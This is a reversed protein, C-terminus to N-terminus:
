LSGIQAGIERVRAKVEAEDVTLIERDRMVVRGQVIVTRVDSAKAVYVLHSLPAYLPTMHVANADVIIIDARKGPELSGLRDAFGLAKANHCTAMKLVHPATAATPDMQAVKHLLAASRMEGFMDLDNNSAPGDTGLGVNVGAAELDRLRLIGSALKMNSEPCHIVSVGRNALLAIDENTLHVGHAFIVNPGLVGLRDLYAPPTADWKEQAERVEGATESVHTLLPARYRDALEKCGQLLDASAAYPSHPQVSVHVLPDDRYKQLLYETYQLGEQPTKSNPSPFDVLAEGLVCRIGLERCAQGVEDEYFYMDVFTTTGGRIMEIAGLLTGWRVREPDIFKREAPWIHEFLWEELPMDDALGRFLTMAIHTHNNILGPLLLNGAADLRERAQWAAEIESQPGIAVITGDNVVLAGPKYNTDQDDITLVYGNTILLDAIPPPHLV